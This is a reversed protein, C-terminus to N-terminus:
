NKLSKGPCRGSSCTSSHEWNRLTIRIRFTSELYTSIYAEVKQFCFITREKTQNDWNRLKLPPSPLHLNLFVNIVPTLFIIYNFYGDVVQLIRRIPYFLTFFEWKLTKKTLTVSMPWSLCRLRSCSILYM